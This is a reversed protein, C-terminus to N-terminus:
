VRSFDWNLKPRVAGPFDGMWSGELREEDHVEFTLPNEMELLVNSGDRVFYIHLTYTGTNLLHGPIHCISSYVGKQVLRPPQATVFVLEGAVTKFHVGVYFFAEELLLAYVFELQLAMGITLTSAASDRASVKIKHVKINGNGPALADDTWVQESTNLYGQGLYEDVVAAVPGARVIQGSALSIANNCLSKVAALNHSVFIVTRGQSGTEKM